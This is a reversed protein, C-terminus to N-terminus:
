TLRLSHLDQKILKIHQKRVGLKGQGRKRYVTLMGWTLSRGKWVILIHRLSDLDQNILQIHQKEAGLKGQGTLRYVTLM